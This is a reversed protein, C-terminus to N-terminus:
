SQYITGRKEEKVPINLEATKELKARFKETQTTTDVPAEPEDEIMPCFTGDCPAEYPCKIKSQDLKRKEALKYAFEMLSCKEREM